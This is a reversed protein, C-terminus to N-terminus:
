RTYLSHLRDILTERGSIIDMKVALVLITYPGPYLGLRTLKVIDKETTLIFDFSRESCIKLIRNIDMKRYNHHDPFKIHEAIKVGLSKATEEFYSPDGISSLLVARKDQAYSLEFTKKTKNEYLHTPLHAAELFAAEPNIGRVERMLEALGFLRKNSKTFVIIGARSLEKKPERLIGRPFLYRNGFPNRSDILVIDLDRELEWHQFGDDLVATDSSYLKVAKYSSRLRDQGVLVPIDAMNKKLMAQEDWGYGRILVCVNKKLEKELIDSLTIVFPTKGTGGLTINGVSIVKLPAKRSKFIRLKYFIKRLFIGGAYILSSLYLIIKLPILSAESSKDTILSYIFDKM